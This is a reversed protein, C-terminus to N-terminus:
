LGGGLFIEAQRKKCALLAERLAIIHARIRFDQEWVVPTEFTLAVASFNRVVWTALLSHGRFSANDSGEGYRIVGASNKDGYLTERTCIPIQKERLGRIITESLRLAGGLCSEYMYFENPCYDDHNVDSRVDPNDEHLDIALEFTKACRILSSTLMGIEAEQTEEHVVRNLDVGNRNLRLNEEFGTPNLCPFIIFNFESRFEDVEQQLFDLAAFVSAPEDGHIGATVLIWPAEAKRAVVEVRYLPLDPSIVGLTELFFGSRSGLAQLRESVLAQYSRSVNKPALSDAM